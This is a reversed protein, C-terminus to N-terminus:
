RRVADGSIEASVDERRRTRQLRAGSPARVRRKARMLVVWDHLPNGGMGSFLAHTACEGMYTLEYLRAVGPQVRLQLLHRSLLDQLADDLDSRRLGTKRWDRELRAFDLTGGRPKRHMRYIDLLARMRTTARVDM